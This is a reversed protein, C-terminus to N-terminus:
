MVEVPNSAEALRKAAMRCVESWADIMAERAEAFTSAYIWGHEIDNNRRDSNAVFVPAGPDDDITIVTKPHDAPFILKRRLFRGPTEFRAFYGDVWGPQDPDIGYRSLFERIEADEM